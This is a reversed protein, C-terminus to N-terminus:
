QSSIKSHDLLDRHLQREGSTGPKYNDPSFQSERLKIGSLIGFYKATSIVDGPKGLYLYCDRHFRMLARLGNTRNLINGPRRELWADPWKKSVAAFYNSVSRAIEADNGDIFMNRYILKQSEDESIKRLKKRRRLLDRDGMPDRSIYGILSDVFAAQTLTEHPKGTAQGLIKIKGEFPSKPESNLLKAINHCTKQPSRTKAFDYLDYMLSKSVKTQKLNITAFLMAQDEMDMDIFITVSLEFQDGRFEELGAIRHQGDLIKAVNEQRDIYMKRAKKEYRANEGSIALIIGTPFSADVTNVYKQLEALRKESLPRQIGSFEEIDRAKIRRVDAYSIDVLDEADIVGVYFDGIPQTSKICPFSIRDAKAMMRERV